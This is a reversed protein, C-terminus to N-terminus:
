RFTVQARNGGRRHKLELTIEDLDLDSETRILGKLRELEDVYEKLMAYRVRQSGVQYEQSNKIKEIAAKTSEIEERITKLAM